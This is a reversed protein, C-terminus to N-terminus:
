RVTDVTVTIGTAGPVVPGPALGELDGPQPPGAMGGSSVRAVVELQAPQADGSEGGHGAQLTFEVPFRPSPFRQVALPMRQGPVRAFIFLVADSPVRDSLAPALAATGSLTWAPAAPAQSPGGSWAGGPPMASPMGGPMGSLAGARSADLEELPATNKGCAVALLVALCALFTHTTRRTRAPVTL